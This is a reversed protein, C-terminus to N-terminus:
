DSEKKIYKVKEEFECELVARDNVLKYLFFPTETALDRYLFYTSGDYHYMEITVGYYFIERLTENLATDEVAGGEPNIVQLYESHWGTSTSDEHMIAVYEKKTDNNIDVYAVGAAQFGFSMGFKKRYVLHNLSQAKQALESSEDFSILNTQNLITRQMDELSKFKAVYENKLTLDYKYDFSSFLRVQYNEVVQHIPGITYNNNEKKSDYTWEVVYINRDLPVVFFHLLVHAGEYLDIDIGKGDIELGSVHASGQVSYEIENLEHDNYLNLYYEDGKKRYDGDQLSIRKLWGNNTMDILIRDVDRKEPINIIYEAFANLNGGKLEKHKTYLQQIKDLYFLGSDKVYADALNLYLSKRASYKEILRELLQIGSALNKVASQTRYDHTEVLFFAYDNLLNAYLKDSMGNPKERLIEKIDSDEIIKLAEDADKDSQYSKLALRHQHVIKNIDMGYSLSSFNFAILSLLLIGFGAKM